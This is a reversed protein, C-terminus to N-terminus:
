NLDLKISVIDSSNDLTDKVQYLEKKNKFILRYSYEGNEKNFYLNILNKNNEILDVKKKSLVELSYLQNAENFSYNTFSKGFYSFINDFIYIGFIVIVILALLMAAIKVEVGAVIGLTLLGFFIVLEFPSKVPNRFRVISLAGIMGLSLAIDQKIIKTIVFAIGPLLLYTALHHYTNAWMQGVFVLSQRIILGSIVLFLLISVNPDYILNLINQM